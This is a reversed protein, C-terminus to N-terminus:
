LPVIGFARWTNYVNKPGSTTDVGKVVNSGSNSLATMTYGEPIGLVITYTGVDLTSFAFYGSTDITKTTAALSSDPFFANVTAGSFGPEGGDIAGNENLDKWVYGNITATPTECVPKGNLEVVCVEGPSCSIVIDECLEATNCNYFHKVLGTVDCYDKIGGPGTLRDTCTEPYGDPPLNSDFTICLIPTATPTPTPTNTPISTPTPTPTPTPTATPVPTGTPTPTPTSTPTPAGTPTPTSTPGPVFTVKITGRKTVKDRIVEVDADGLGTFICHTSFTGDELFGTLTAVKTGECFLEASWGGTATGGLSFGISSELPKSGSDPAAFVTVFLTKTPTPTPAGTPPPVLAIKRILPVNLFHGGLGVLLFALFAIILGVISYTIKERAGQIKEKDGRSFIYRLAGLFIYLLALLLVIILFFSLGKRIVNQGTTFLDGTPINPPPTIGGFGPLKLALLLNVPASLFGM